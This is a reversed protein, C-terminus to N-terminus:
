ASTEMKSAFEAGSKWLTLMLVAIKRASAIAAKRFGKRGSLRIAWSKLALFRKVNRILKAAADALLARM